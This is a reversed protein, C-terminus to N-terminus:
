VGGVQRLNLLDVAWSCTGSVLLGISFVPGKLRRVSEGFNAAGLGQSPQVM